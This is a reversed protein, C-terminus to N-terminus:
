KRAGPYWGRRYAEESNVPYVRSVEKNTKYTVLISHGLLTALEQIPEHVERWSLSNDWYKAGLNTLEAKKDKYHAVVTDGSYDLVRKGKTKM